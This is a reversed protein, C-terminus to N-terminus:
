PVSFVRAFQQGGLPTPDFVLEAVEAMQVVAFQGVLGVRRVERRVEKLVLEVFAAGVIEAFLERGDGSGLLAQCRSRVAARDDAAVRDGVLPELCERRGLSRDLLFPGALM